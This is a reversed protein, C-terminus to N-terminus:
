HIRKVDEGVSTTRKRKVTAMKVHSFHYRRAPKCKLFQTHTHTHTYSHTHMGAVTHMLLDSSLKRFNTRDRLRKM